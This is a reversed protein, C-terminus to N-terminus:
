VARQGRHVSQRETRGYARGSRNLEPHRNNNRKASKSANEIDRGGACNQSSIFLRGISCDSKLSVHGGHLNWQLSREFIKGEGHQLIRRRRGGSMPAIGSGPSASVRDLRAQPALRRGHEVDAVAHSAQTATEAYTGILRTSRNRVETPGIQGTEPLYPPDGSRVHERSRNSRREGARDHTPGSRDLPATVSLPRPSPQHGPQAAEGALVQGHPRLRGSIVSDFPLSPASLKQCRIPTM